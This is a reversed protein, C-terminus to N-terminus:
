ETSAESHEAQKTPKEKQEAKKASKGKNYRRRSKGRPKEELKMYKPQVNTKYGNFPCKIRKGVFQLHIQGSGVYIVANVTNLFPRGLIVPVNINSGMDLIIFDTPGYEDQSKVLIDKAVGEPFRITQDVMQLRMFTPLLTGGLLNEYILKSIINISSGLDCFVNHFLQAGIECTITSMGPDDKKTIFPPDVLYGWNSHVLPKGHRTSVIKVFELPDEPKGPIRGQEYSPVATALQALQTELMKNFSLQNKIASNFTDMKKSLSELIKDNAVIRKNISDNFKTQGLVLDTPSPQNSFSNGSNNNYGMGQGQYFPRSSWQQEQTRNGNNFNNNIYNVEEPTEPCNNGSHDDGGCVECWPDTEVARVAVPTQIAEIVKKSSSEEIKNMLLDMKASLMDVENLAHVGRKKPQLHEENWGQNIVMNEILDKADKVNKQLFAGGASADLHSCAM